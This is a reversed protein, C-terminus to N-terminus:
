GHSIVRISVEEDRAALPNEAAADTKRCVRLGSITVIGTDPDYSASDYTMYLNNNKDSAERSILRIAKMKSQGPDSEDYVSYDVADDIPAFRQLMICLGPEEAAAYKEDLDQNLCVKSTTGFTDSYYTIVTSDLETKVDKATGLENRLASITTSLLVEANSALVVKEYANKAVPVGSAVISAAMLMILVAALTEAITFGSKNHLKQRM